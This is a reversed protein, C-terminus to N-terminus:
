AYDIGLKDCVAKVDVTDGPGRQMMAMHWMEQFVYMHDIEIEGRFTVVKKKEPYLKKFIGVLATIAEKDNKCDKLDNYGGKSAYKLTSFCNSKYNDTTDGVAIQYYLWSRGDGDVDGKETLWLSGFGKVERIKNGDKTPNHHFGVTQKADKDIAVQVEKYKDDKDMAKWRAYAQVTAISCADDAEIDSVMTIPLEACAWDKLQELILPKMDARQGKYPLLTALKHRFVEGRGTYGYYDHCKLRGCILNIQDVVSKKAGEFPDLFTDPKRVTNGHEDEYEEGRVRFPRPRQHDTVTFDEAKYFENGSIANQTGVWGGVKKAHHGWLQTRNELEVVQGTPEHKATIFTEEAVSAAAFLIFDIDFILRM